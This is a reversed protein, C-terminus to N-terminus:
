NITYTKAPDKGKDGIIMLTKGDPSIKIVQCKSGAPTGNITISRCFFPKRWNWNGALPGQPIDGTIRGDSHVIFYGSGRTIKKDVVAARYAAETHIRKFSEALAPGSTLTIAVAIATLKSYFM